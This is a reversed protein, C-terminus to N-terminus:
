YITESTIFKKQRFFAKTGDFDTFVDCAHYDFTCFDSKTNVM